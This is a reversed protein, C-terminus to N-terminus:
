LLFVKFLFASIRRFEVLEHTQLRNALDVSDFNEFNTISDRLSAYDEEEVLLDNYASNM